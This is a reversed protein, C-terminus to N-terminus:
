LCVVTWQAWTWDAWSHLSLSVPFSVLSRGFAENMMPEKEEEEESDEDVLPTFAYRPCLRLRLFWISMKNWNFDCSGGGGAGGSRWGDVWEDMQWRWGGRTILQHGGCSCSSWCSWPSCSVGSPMMLGSSGGTRCVCLWMVAARVVMKKVPAKKKKIVLVWRCVNPCRFFRQPGSSSSSQLQFFLSFWMLKKVELFVCQLLLNSVNTGIVAFILTNTFHRYLSLKVVNRRLKLLKMTQALSVFIHPCPWPDPSSLLTSCSTFKHLGSFSSLQVPPPPHPPPNTRVCLFGGRCKLMKYKNAKSHKFPEASDSQGVPVSTASDASASHKHGMKFM